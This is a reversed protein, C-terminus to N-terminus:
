SASRRFRGPPVGSWRSFAVSFSYVSGYGVQLAIEELKTASSRLMMSARRMRLHTLHEIPSHQFNKLCLRRLHEESTRAARALETATWKHALDTEVAGWLCWLRQDVPESGALRRATTELISVLPELMSPQAAGSTEHTLVRLISIFDSADVDILTPRPGRLAPAAEADDFFVWAITWPGAGKVEFAHHQGVPALLVQGPRWDVAKGGILTRGRGSVTAVIHSHVSRLRVMRYPARIVSYGVW